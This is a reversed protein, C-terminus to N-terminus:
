GGVAVLQYKGGAKAEKFERMTLAMFAANVAFLILLAGNLRLENVMLGILPMSAIGIITSVSFYVSNAYGREGVNFSRNLIILSLPYTLGHPIGLIALALVYTPWNPALSALILGILTLGYSLNVYPEPNVVRTLSLYLRSLMSATFFATFVMVASSYGVHFREIAYISGFTMLAAFPLGYSSNVYIAVKFGLRSLTDKLRPRGVLGGGSAEDEFSLRVSALPVILALPTFLLFVQLLNFRTLLASEYAPGLILSVSLALTYLALLRERTSSDKILSISTVINPMILGMSLGLATSLLWIDLPTSLYFAPILLAFAISSSVLAIRRSRANLRSNIFGSTIFSGISTLTSLISIELSNFHLYYKAVLPITTGAMNNTARYAMTLAVIVITLGILGGHRKLM